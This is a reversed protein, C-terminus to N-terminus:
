AAAPEDEVFGPWQRMYQIFRPSLAEDKLHQITVPTQPSTYAPDRRIRNVVDHRLIAARGIIVYDCGADLVSQADKGSMVKGAAGLRVSGRPIETFYSM